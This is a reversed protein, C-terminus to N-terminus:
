PETMRVCNAVDEPIAMHNSALYAYRERSGECARRICEQLGHENVCKQSKNPFMEDYLKGAAMLGFAVSYFVGVLFALVLMGTIPGKWCETM